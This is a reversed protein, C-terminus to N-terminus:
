QWCRCNLMNRKRDILYLMEIPQKADYYAIAQEELGCNIMDQAFQKLRWAILEQQEVLRKGVTKV